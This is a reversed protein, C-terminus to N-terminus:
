YTLWVFHALIRNKIVKEKSKIKEALLIRAKDLIEKIQKKKLNNIEIM